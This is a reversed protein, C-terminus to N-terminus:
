GYRLVHLSVWEYILGMEGAHDPNVFLRETMARCRTAYHM